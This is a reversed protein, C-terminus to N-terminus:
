ARPAKSKKKKKAVPATVEESVELTRKTKRPGIPHSEGSEDKVMEKRKGVPIEEHFSVSAIGEESRDVDLFQQEKVNDGVESKNPRARVPVNDVSKLPPTEFDYELEKLKETKAKRRKEENENRNRWLDRGMAMEHKRGELKNWPIKKFRKDAGKWINEHLQEPSVVKCKLIHGFMLYNNMTEAAIKAVSASKFEIFAYHKSAGTKRNRSMRLHKIDGFQSFYQRMQHEYFGHPIRGVYIVGSGEDADAKQAKIEPM